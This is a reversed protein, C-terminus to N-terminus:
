SKASWIIASLFCAANLQEEAVTLCCVCFILYSRERSIETDPKYFRTHDTSCVHGDCDSRTGEESSVSRFLSVSGLPVSGEEHWKGIWVAQVQAQEWQLHMQVPLHGVAMWLQLGPRHVVEVSPNRRISCRKRSRTHVRPLGETSQPDTGAAAARSGRWKTEAKLLIFSNLEDKTYTPVVGLFRVPTTRGQRIGLNM